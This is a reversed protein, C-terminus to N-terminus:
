KSKLYQKKFIEIYKTYINTYEKKQKEKEILSEFYEAEELKLNKYFKDLMLYDKKDLMSEIIELQKKSIKESNAISQFFSKKFDSRFKTDKFTNLFLERIKSVKFVWMELNLNPNLEKATALIAPRVVHERCGIGIGDPNDDTILSGCISCKLGLSYTMKNEKYLYNKKLATMWGNLM